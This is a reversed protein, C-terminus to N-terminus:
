FFLLYHKGKIELVLCDGKFSEDKFVLMGSSRFSSWSFIAVGVSKNKKNSM